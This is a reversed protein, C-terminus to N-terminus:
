KIFGAKKFITKLKSAPVEGSIKYEKLEKGKELLLVTPTGEIEFQANLQQKDTNSMNTLNLKFYDLDNEKAFKDFVPQFNICHSCGDQVIEVVFTEKNEIKEQMTKYTVTRACGTLAFCCIILFVGIIKKKM